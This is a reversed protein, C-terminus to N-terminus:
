IVTLFQAEFVSFLNDSQLSQHSQLTDKNLRAGSKSKRPLHDGFWRQQVASLLLLNKHFEM